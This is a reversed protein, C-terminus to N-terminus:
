IWTRTGLFAVLALVLTVILIGFMYRRNNRSHRNEEEWHKRRADIREEPNLLQTELGDQMPVYEEYGIEASIEDAIRKPNLGLFRAYSKAYGVIFTKGPFEDYDEDELAYIYRVDINLADAAEGLTFGQEMRAQQFRMGIRGM